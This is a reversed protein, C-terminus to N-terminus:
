KQNVVRNIVGELQKQDAESIEIANKSTSMGPSLVNATIDDMKSFMAMTVMTDKGDSILSTVAITSSFLGTETLILNDGEVVLTKGPLTSYHKALAMKVQNISKGEAIVMPNGANASLSVLLAALGILRRM